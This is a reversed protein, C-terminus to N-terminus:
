ARFRANIQRNRELAAMAEADTVGPHIEQYGEVASMFGADVLALVHEREAKKEAASKPIGQYTIRYGSEPLGADTARNLLIASLELLQLDGDRFQPEYRQQAQRQSDRSVAIAYGSRPDHSPSSVDAPNIGAMSVLRREYKSITEIFASPDAPMDWSNVQPQGAADAISRFMLVTAPDAVVASRGRGDGSEDRTDLGQIEVDVAYRQRWAASRIVHSLHTYYVGVNLTGEVLERTSWPDYLKGTKAAHYTAYPLVPTGDSRRYTYADGTLGGKTGLFDESLDQRDKNGSVVQYIPEKPNSVDLVDFTWITRGQATTRLRSEEIRVPQDPIDASAKSAVLDPPVPRFVLRGGPADARVHMERLGLTDRQVRAMLAWLGAETLQANLLEIDQENSVIPWRDYLTALSDWIARYLNASLDLTGWAERRVHSIQEKLRRELDQHWRGYLIRRALRTWEWRELEGMDAPMPPPLSQSQTYTNVTVM